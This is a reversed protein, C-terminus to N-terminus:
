KPSLTCLIKKGMQKPPSEIKAVDDLQVIITELLKEGESIHAIERGKFLISLLVKDKKVLFERAKNVKVQIDHDGTKPRLRLEKLQPKNAQQKSIRKKQQYKYKGYDMIRCVPPKAGPAVEVLDLGAAKARSLAESSSMVGLQEGEDSIVRVQAIRIMENVRQGGAAGTGKNIEM